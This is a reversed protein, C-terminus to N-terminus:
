PQNQILGASLLSIIARDGQRDTRSTPVIFIIYVYRSGRIRAFSGSLWMTDFYIGRDLNAALELVFGPQLTICRHKDLRHGRECYQDPKTANLLGVIIGM